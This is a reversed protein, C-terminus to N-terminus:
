YRQGIMVFAAIPAHRDNQSPRENFRGVLQITEEEKEEEEEEEDDEEEEEEEEEVVKLNGTKVKLLKL